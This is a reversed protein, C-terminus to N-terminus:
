KTLIEETRFEVYNKVAEIWKKYDVTNKALFKYQDVLLIATQYTAKLKNLNDESKSIKNM